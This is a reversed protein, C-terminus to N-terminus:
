LVQISFLIELLDHTKVTGFLKTPPQLNFSTMRVQHNGTFVVCQEEMTITAGSINQEREIDTIQIEVCATVQKLDGNESQHEVIIDNIKLVIYPYKESRLLRRFDRTMLSADCLFDDVKFSVKMGEFVAAGSRSHDFTALTDNMESKLLRCNFENINTQGCILLETSQLVLVGRESQAHSLYPCCVLLLLFVVTGSISNSKRFNGYGIFSDFILTVRTFDM